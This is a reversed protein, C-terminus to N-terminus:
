SKATRPHMFRIFWFLMISLMAILVGMVFSPTMYTKFAQIIFDNLWSSVVNLLGTTPIAAPNPNRAANEPSQLKKEALLKM